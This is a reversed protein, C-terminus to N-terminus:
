YYSIKFNNLFHLIIIQESSYKKHIKKNVIKKLFKWPSTLIKNYKWRYRWLISITEDVDVNLVKSIIITALFIFEFNLIPWSTYRSVVFFSSRLILSSDGDGKKVICNLRLPESFRFRRSDFGSWSVRMQSMTWSWSLSFFDTM